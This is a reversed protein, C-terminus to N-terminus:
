TSLQEADQPWAGALFTQLANFVVNPAEIWPVHAGEAVTLLRANPLRLAWDRGAGYPSSRDRKGHIILVPASVKAYEDKTLRLASLSPLIYKMLPHMFNVENPVGCPAWHLHDATEPQAVYLVRLLAWCAHCFEDTGMEARRKQLEAFRASFDELTGDTCRLHAPYETSPDPTTPGILVLRSVQTPHAMAFLIAAVSFYSHALIALRDIGFHQRIAEIDEVDHHIGRTLKSPDIVTDSLGRNRPDYFIATHDSALRQFDEFMYIRNPVLITDAPSGILQIFLNLGDDTSIM